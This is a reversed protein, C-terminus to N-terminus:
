GLRSKDASRLVETEGEHHLLPGLHPPEHHGDPVDLRQLEHHPVVSGAQTGPHAARGAAQLTQLLRVAGVPTRLAAPRHTVILAGLGPNVNNLALRQLVGRLFNLEVVKLIRVIVVPADSRESQELHLLFTWLDPLSEAEQHIM